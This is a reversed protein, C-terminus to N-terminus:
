PSDRDQPVSAIAITVNARYLQLDSGKDISPSNHACTDSFLSAGGQTSVHQLWQYRATEVLFVTSKQDVEIFSPPRGSRVVFSELMGATQGDREREYVLGHRSLSVVPQNPM